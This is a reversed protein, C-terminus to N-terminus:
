KKDKKGTHITITQKSTRTGETSQKLEYLVKEPVPVYQSLIKKMEEDQIDKPLKTKKEKTESMITVDGIMVGKHNNEDLYTKIKEELLTKRKKLEGCFLRLRKLEADINKLEQSSAGIDFPQPANM